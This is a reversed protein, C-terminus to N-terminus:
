KWNFIRVIRYVINKFKRPFQFRLNRNNFYEKKDNTVKPVRWDSGYVFELFEEAKAPARFQENRISVLSFGSNYFLAPRKFMRRKRYRGAKYWCMLEYTFDYKTLVFKMNKKSDDFKTLRFGKNTFLSIFFIPDSIEEHILAIGVDWDWSILDNNRCAGLLAGGSLFWTYKNENLIARVECLGKLENIIDQNSKTKLDGM